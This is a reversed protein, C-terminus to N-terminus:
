SWSGKQPQQHEEHESAGKEEVHNVHEKHEKFEKTFLIGVSVPVPDVLPTPFSGEVVVERSSCATLVILIILTVLRQAKRGLTMSDLLRGVM